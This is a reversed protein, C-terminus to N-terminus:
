VMGLQGKGAEAEEASGKMHLETEALGGIGIRIMTSTGRRAMM